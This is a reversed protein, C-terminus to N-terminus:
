CRGSHARRLKRPQDSCPSACETAGRPNGHIGPPKLKHLWNEIHTLDDLLRLNVRHGQGYPTLPDFTEPLAIPQNGFYWSATRDFILVKASMDKRQEDKGPHYGPDVRHIECDDLRYQADKRGRYHREYDTPLMVKEVRGIWVLLGEGIQKPMYGAVWDGVKATSRIRPKCTALTILGCDVCPAYGDDSVLIYRYFRSM